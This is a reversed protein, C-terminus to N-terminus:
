LRETQLLLYKKRAEDRECELRSSVEVPVVEMNGSQLSSLITFKVANTEPTQTTIPELKQNNFPNLNVEGMGVSRENGFKSKM